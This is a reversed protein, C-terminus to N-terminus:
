RVDLGATNHISFTVPQQPLGIITNSESNTHSYSHCLVKKAGILVYFNLVTGGLWLFDFLYVNFFDFNISIGSPGTGNLPDVNWASQAVNLTDTGERVCRLKVTGDSAELFIGDLLDTDPNPTDSVSPSDEFDTDEYFYGARKVVNTQPSFNFLSFEVQQAKGSFYPHSQYSQIMAIGGSTTTVSLNCSKLTEPSQAVVGGNISYSSFSEGIINRTFRYDGVTLTSSVETRGACDINGGTPVGARNVTIVQLAHSDHDIRLPKITNTGNIEVGMALTGKETGTAIDGSEKESLLYVPLTEGIKALTVRAQSDLISM